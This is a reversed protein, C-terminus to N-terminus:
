EVRSFILRSTGVDRRPQVMDAPQNNPPRPQQFQIRRQIDDQLQLVMGCTLLNLNYVNYKAFNTCPKSQTKRKRPLLKRPALVCSACREHHRARHVPNRPLNAPSVCSRLKLNNGYHSFSRRLGLPWIGCNAFTARITEQDFARGQM